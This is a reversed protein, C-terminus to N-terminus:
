EQDPFGLIEFAKKGTQVIEEWYAYVQSTEQLGRVTLSYYRRREKMESIILQYNIELSKLTTYLSSDKIYTDSHTIDKLRKKIQYGWTAGEQKIICLILITTLAGKADKELRKVLSPERM